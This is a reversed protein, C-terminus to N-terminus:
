STKLELEDPNSFSPIVDYGFEPEIFTDVRYNVLERYDMMWHFVGVGEGDVTNTLLTHSLFHSFAKITM